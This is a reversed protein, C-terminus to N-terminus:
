DRTGVSHSAAGYPNVTTIADAETAARHKSTTTVWEGPKMGDLATVSGAPVLFKFTAYRRDPEYAVFEVPFTFPESWTKSADYRIARSIGDAYTDFGSWTLVIREGPKFQPFHERGQDGVVPSKVTLTRTGPDLAVLEGSWTYTDSTPQWSQAGVRIVTLALASFM